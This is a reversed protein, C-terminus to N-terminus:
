GCARLDSSFYQLTGERGKQKVRTRACVCACMRVSGRECVGVGLDRLAESGRLRHGQAGATLAAPADRRRGRRGNKV